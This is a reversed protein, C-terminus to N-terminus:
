LGLKELSAAIEALEKKFQKPSEKYGTIDVQLDNDANLLLPVKKVGFYSLGETIAGASFCDLGRLKNNTKIDFKDPGIEIKPDNGACAITAGAFCVACRSGVDADAGDFEHYTGMDIIYIKKLKEVAMLDTLAQKIAKSPKDSLKPPVLSKKKTSTKTAM